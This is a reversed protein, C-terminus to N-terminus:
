KFHRAMFKGDTNRPVVHHLDMDMLSLVRYYEYFRHGGDENAYYANNM